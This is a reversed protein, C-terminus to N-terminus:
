NSRSLAEALREALWLDCMWSGRNDKREVVIGGDGGHVNVGRWLPSAALPAIVAEVAAPSGSAPRLRGERNRITFTPYSGAVQTTTKSALRLRVNRGHRSGEYTAAGTIQKQVGQGAVRPTVHLEPIETMTLGLPKMTADANAYLPGLSNNPGLMNRLMYGAYGIIMPVFLYLTWYTQWLQWPIVACGILVMMVGGGKISSRGLEWTAAASDEVAEQDIPGTALAALLSPSNATTPDTVESVPGTAEAKAKREASDLDARQFRLMLFVFGFVIAFIVIYLGTPNATNQGFMLALAAVVVMVVIVGVVGFRRSRKFDQNLSDETTPSM